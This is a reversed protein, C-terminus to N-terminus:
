QGSAENDGGVKADYMGRLQSIISNVTLDVDYTQVDSKAIRYQYYTAALAKVAGNYLPLVESDGYFDQNDGVANKVVQGALDIYSQIMTDDDNGDIYLIQKVEDVTPM